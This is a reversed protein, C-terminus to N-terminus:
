KAAKPTPEVYNCLDLIDESMARLRMLLGSVM